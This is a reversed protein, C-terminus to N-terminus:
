RRGEFVLHIGMDQIRKCHKVDLEALKECGAAMATLGSGEVGELGRMDLDVLERLRGIYEIGKDTLMTCYSVNLKKLKKCGNSIAALGDDGIGPCSYFNFM